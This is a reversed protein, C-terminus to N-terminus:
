LLTHFWDVFYHLHPTGTISIDHKSQFQGPCRSGSFCQGIWCIKWGIRCCPTNTEQPLVSVVYLPPTFARASPAVRNVWKYLAMFGKLGLFGPSTPKSEKFAFSPSSAKFLGDKELIKSPVCTWSLATEIAYQLWGSSSCHWFNLSRSNSRVYALKNITMSINCRLTFSNSCILSPILLSWLIHCSRHYFFMMMLLM